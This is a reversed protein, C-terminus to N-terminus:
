TWQSEGDKGDWGSWASTRETAFVVAGPAATGVRSLLQPQDRAAQEDCRAPRGAWCACRGITVRAAPYIRQCSRKDWFVDPMAVLPVAPVTDAPLYM